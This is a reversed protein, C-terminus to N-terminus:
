LRTTQTLLKQYKASYGKECLTILAESEEEDTIGIYRETTDRSDHRLLKRIRNMPVGNNHLTTAFTRRLAHHTAKLQIRNAIRPLMDNIGRVTYPKVKGGRVYILLHPDDDLLGKTLTKRHRMWLDFIDNTLPHKAVTKIRPRRHGKGRVIIRNPIDTYDTILARVTEVKRFGTDLEMHILMLERPDECADLLDQAQYQDLFPRYIAEQLQITIGSVKVIPNGVHNLFINFVRFDQDPSVKLLHYIEDEDIKKPNTTMNQEILRRRMRLIVRKYNSITEKVLGRKQCWTLYENLHVLLKERRPM